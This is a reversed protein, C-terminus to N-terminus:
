HETGKRACISCHDFSCKAHTLSVSPSTPIRDMPIKHWKHSLLPKMQIFCLIFRSFDASARDLLRSGTADVEPATSFTPAALLKICVLPELHYGCGSHTKTSLTKYSSPTVIKCCQCTAADFADALTRDLACFSPSSCQCCTCVTCIEQSQPLVKAEAFNLALRQSVVFRRVDHIRPELLLRSWALSVHVLRMQAIMHTSNLFARKLVKAM